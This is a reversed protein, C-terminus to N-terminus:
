SPFYIKLYRPLKLNKGQLPSITYHYSSGRQVRGRSTALVSGSPPPRSLRASLRLRPGSQDRARRDCQLRKSEGERYREKIQGSLFLFIQKRRLNLKKNSKLKKTCNKHLMKRKNQEM